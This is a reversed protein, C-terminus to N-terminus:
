SNRRQPTPEILQAGQNRVNGVATSVRFWEFAEPPEGQQLLLQEAREKPTTPDLWETALEPSLVVPRRDHVDHADATIIVFGDHEGPERDGAPFQGIAAALQRMAALWQTVRQHHCHRPDSYPM